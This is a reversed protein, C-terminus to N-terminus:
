LWAGLMDTQCEFALAFGVFCQDACCAFHWARPTRVVNFPAGFLRASSISQPWNLSNKMLETPVACSFAAGAFCFGRTLTLIGVRQRIRVSSRQTRVGFINLRSIVPRFGDGDSRFGQLDPSEARSGRDPEFRHGNCEIRDDGRFVKWKAALVGMMAPQECSDVM